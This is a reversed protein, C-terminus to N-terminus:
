GLAGEDRLRAQEADDLGLEALIEAAHQGLTPAPASPSANSASFLAAPRPELLEGAVPHDIIRLYGNATVQPHAPLDALSLVKACPVDLSELLAMGEDVDMNAAALAWENEVQTMLDVELVRGVGTRLRPDDGSPANFAACLADFAADTPTFTIYGGKFAYLRCFSAMSPRWEGGDGVLHCDVAADPWLFAIAAGMMSLKVEQGGAGNARAFLAATIAQAATLATLKDCVVNRILGPRGDGARADAQLDAFGAYCQMIHDYAPRDAMPGVDGFGSISVYILEPYAERLSEYDLGLKGMVKPRFNHLLVDAQAILRRLVMVGGATKLDLMISRKGRNFMHFTASMGNRSSGPNRGRDGGPPAEVKVVEAGQDALMQAAMPGAVVTSLDLVRVGHM